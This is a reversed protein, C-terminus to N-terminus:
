IFYPFYSGTDTKIKSSMVQYERFLFYKVRSCKDFLLKRSNIKGRTVDYRCTTQPENPTQVRERWDLRYCHLVCHTQLLICM